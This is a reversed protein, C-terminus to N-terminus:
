PGAETPGPALFMRACRSREDAELPYAGIYEDVLHLRDESLATAAAEPLVAGLREASTASTGRDGNRGLMLVDEPHHRAVAAAVARGGCSPSDPLDAPATSPSAEALAGARRGGRLAGSSRRHAEGHEGKSGPENHVTSCASLVIFRLETRGNSGIESEGYRPTKRTV